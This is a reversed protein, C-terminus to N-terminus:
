CWTLQFLLAHEAERFRWRCWQPQFEWDAREVGVHERCWAKIPNLRGLLWRRNTTM